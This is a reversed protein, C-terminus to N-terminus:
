QTREIKTKLTKPLIITNEVKENEKIKIEEQLNRISKELDQHAFLYNKENEESKMKEREKMEDKERQCSSLFKELESFKM